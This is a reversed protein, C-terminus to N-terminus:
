MGFFLLVTIIHVMGYHFNTSLLSPDKGSTIEPFLSLCHTVTLESSDDTRLGQVSGGPHFRHLYNGADWHEQEHITPEIILSDIHTCSQFGSYSYTHSRNFTYELSIPQLLAALKCHAHPFFTFSESGSWNWNVGGQYSSYLTAVSSSTLNFYKSAEFLILGSFHANVIIFSRLVGSGSARLSAWQIGWSCFCCVHM